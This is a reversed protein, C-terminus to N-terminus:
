SYFDTRWIIGKKHLPSFYVPLEAIVNSRQNWVPGNREEPEAWMATTSNLVEYVRKNNNWNQQKKLLEAPTRSSLGNADSINLGIPACQVYQSTDGQVM